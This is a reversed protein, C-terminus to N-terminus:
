GRRGDPESRGARTSVAGIPLTRELAVSAAAATGILLWGTPGLPALGLATRLPPLVLTAALLAVSLGVARLANPTAAGEEVSAEMAHALQCGIISGYGVSQAQRGGRLALTYAALSPVAISIGRRLIEQRLPGELAAEGERALQELDRTRPEQVVLALAPLVDSGLNVALIQRATVPTGPGLLGAGVLFGVEGLNGGLLYGLSRRINAWFTRGEILADVLTSVDDDALVVDAAQRAVETGGRGMAVGVDALRLAPADNVGDGTMAVVHGCRQLSTVVRVKELPAIRAIVSTTALREDLESDSLSGIDEGTLVREPAADVGVQRAIERATEPHDGTLMIMWVGAARCRAVASAAGPRVSDAIGLLGLAVLGRPDHVDGEADGEAVLLVRFGRAALRDARELLESGRGEDLPLDVGLRREAFCRSVVGEPSGKVCLRGALVAAHFARAPDFPAERDREPLLEDELGCARAAELVAVDTPHAGAASSNPRPCAVAAARLLDRLRPSLATDFAVEDDGDSLLQLALRGTTLTGTKDVCAVDVRGLAEVAALRRVLANREALRRGVGTQGIRALLPLGEPVAAIATSAGIALQGLLPRRRLLGILVVLVAGGIAVPMVERVMRSLRRNLPSEPTPELGLAAATAGLRTDAGVAVVLARGHGVTVDSGELVIRSQDTAGSASKAVPLSEGTLAAEDVQLGRTKVLRADAPVRDGASLLLLDGPVLQDAPIRTRMGGRLVHATTSGMQRLAEVARGVRSEEVAGITANAGVVAGILGVDAVSRMFLSLTAGIGLAAMLPSRLQELLAAAFPSRERVVPRPRIRAAAEEATLGTDRTDLADMVDDVSRAGWREPEPDVLQAGRVRRADDGGRLRWWALGTSALGAAGVEFALRRLGPRGLIEWAAGVLTAVVSVAIADREARERRRAVDLVIRVAALDAALLDAAGPFGGAIGGTVAIGLDAAALSEAADVSDAVVGVVEGRAQRARIEDVLTMRVAAIGLDALAREAATAAAEPPLAVLLEVGHAACTSALARAEGSLAPPSGAEPTDLLPRVGDVLLVDPLRVFWSRTSRVVLGSRALRASASEAAVEAGVVAPHPDLVLLTSLAVRRSRTLALTVLAAAAAIPTVLLEYRAAPSHPQPVPRPVSSPLAPPEVELRFREGLLRSGADVRDGPAIPTLRGMRDLCSGRGSVVRGPLPTRAGPAIEVEEGAEVPFRLPSARAYAERARQRAHGATLARLSTLALLALGVHSRSLGLVVATALKLGFDGPAPGAERRRAEVAVVHFDELLGLVVSAALSGGSPRPPHGTLPRLATAVLAAGATALLVTGQAIAARDEEDLIPTRPDSPPQPALTEDVRRLAELVSAADTVTPDFVVLVNGTLANGSVGAAGPIAALVDDLSPGLSRFWRPWHVRIRESGLHVVRLAATEV